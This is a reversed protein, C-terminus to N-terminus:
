ASVQRNASRDSLLADIEARHPMAPATGVRTVSLAGTACGFRAAALPSQGEALACAFGGNFADGAGTTDVVPGADFSPILQSRQRDRYFAGKAGLTILVAGVGKQLLRDAAQEASVTDTVDIGSLTSAETENPTLFDVLPYIEDPVPIAPAPNLITTVGHRRALRLAHLALSVPTELQTMFVAADRISAEAADIDSTTLDNAAGPAVIIANEGTQQQLFVFAGGTPNAGERVFRQDVGADSWTKRATEGFSDRGICTIFSVIGGARAAAVSQNSGKGGPGSRFSGLITEGMQPLRDAIFALDAVYIGMIVIAKRM